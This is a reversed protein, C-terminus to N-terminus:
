RELVERRVEAHGRVVLRPVGPVLRPVEGAVEVVSVDAAHRSRVEFSRGTSGLGSALLRRAVTAGEASGRGAEAGARAGEHAAHRAVNGAYAYTAVQALYVLLLLGLTMAAVFEVLTSGSDRGLPASM